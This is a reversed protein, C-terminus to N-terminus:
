EKGSQPNKGDLLKGPPPHRPLRLTFTTGHGPESKVTISGHHEKVIQQVVPLGLGTGQSGKTSFFKRFLVKLTDQDMGCGTDSVALGFYDDSDLRSEVSVVGGTELCADIGNGILNVLCRLIGKSDLTVKRLNEDTKTKIEVGVREAQLDLVEKAEKILDNLDVESYEPERDKVYTLMDLVLKSIRGINKGVMAWGKDIMGLDQKKIARNVLYEGGKFGNLLNKVCHALGAINEGLEALREQQEKAHDRLRKKELCAGIRARLLVPNFPKSLYDEAGMEICRVVSDLEELASIIIVPIDRWTEHSKLYELVQYGNMEPMMIDLLMLDFPHTQIMELAQRGNEAVTVHHGQRQLHRTLLDRSIENDDVILLDGGGSLQLASDEEVPRITKVAERISSLTESADGEPLEGAQVKSFNVVDEILSLFHRASSDIKRLDSRFDGDGKEETRELLMETFGVVANLPTRLAHRLRAGYVDIDHEAQVVADRTPDLIGNVLTLLERGGKLIKQLDPVCEEYGKTDADELLMESYGIIANIPTRLEHRLNAIFARQSLEVEHEVDSKVKINETLGRHKM